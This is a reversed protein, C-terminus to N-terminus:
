NWKHLIVYFITATNIGWGFFYFNFAQISDFQGVSIGVAHAILSILTFIIIIGRPEEM